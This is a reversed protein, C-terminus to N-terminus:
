SSLIILRGRAGQLLNPVDAARVVLLLDPVKKPFDAIIIMGFFLCSVTAVTM